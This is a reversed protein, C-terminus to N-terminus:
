CRGNHLGNQLILKTLFLLLGCDFKFDLLEKPHVELAKALEVLTTFTVFVAQRQLDHLPQSNIPTM